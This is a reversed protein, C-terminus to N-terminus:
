FFIGWFYGFGFGIIDSLTDFIVDFIGTEQVLISVIAFCSFVGLVAVLKKKKVWYHSIVVKEKPLRRKLPNGQEDVPKVFKPDIFGTQNQDMAFILSSDNKPYTPEQNM